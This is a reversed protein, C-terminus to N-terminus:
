NKMNVISLNVTKEKEMGPGLSINWYLSTSYTYSIERPEMSDVPRAFKIVSSVLGSEENPEIVFIIKDANDKIQLFSIGTNENIKKEENLSIRNGDHIIETSYQMSEGNRQDFGTQAFNLEIAFFGKLELPSENRLIYQVSIGSSSFIYNKRLTVPLNMLSFLGKGELYIEKRKAEFKREKFQVNSFLPSISKRSSIYDELDSLEGLHEVFLGRKYTDSIEDFKEIRSLSAAYNASSKLLNFDSIMGGNLSIVVHYNEMQCAYENLGDGNYDYACLSETFKKSAERIFREAENLMRFAQQRKEAIAPLGLTPNVYNTGCQAEWLSESAAQKRMKDGGKCQSIIMSLYMMREYLKRNQPYTNLFDYITLPFHGNNDMKEFARNAWKSIELNMGAPIYTPIFSTATKLYSGPLDLKVSHGNESTGDAITRISEFSSSKMFIAFEELTFSIAIVKDASSDYERICDDEYSTNIFKKIRMIWADDSEIELPRLENFVPFVKLTKGQENVILPYFALQKPPILTSDLLVYEMGCSQFTTILSSDWISGFIELGCPRKGISSRFLTNMKEIQGSRDVPFLLPFIPSYYGGGIIEIQKRSILERLISISEPHKREYFLLQDGTFAISISFSSNAYLFTLLHKFCSQYNGELSICDNASSTDGKLTICLRIM